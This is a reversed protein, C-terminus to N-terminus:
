LKGNVIDYVSVCIETSILVIIIWELFDSRQNQLVELFYKVNDQVLSIKFEIGHFREELEFESRMEDWIQTRYAM